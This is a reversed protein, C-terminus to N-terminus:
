TFTKSEAIRIKEITCTVDTLMSRVVWLRDHRKETEVHAFFLQKAELAFKVHRKARELATEFNTTATSGVVRSLGGNTTVIWTEM